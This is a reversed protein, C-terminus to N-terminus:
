ATPVAALNEATPATPAAMLPRGFRPRAPKRFVVPYRQLQAEDRTPATVAELYILCIARYLEVAVPGLEKLAIRRHGDQAPLPHIGPYAALLESPCFVPAALNPTVGCAFEPVQEAITSLVAEVDDAAYAPLSGCETRPYSIFWAQYLAEAAQMVEAESYGAANAMEKLTLATALFIRRM